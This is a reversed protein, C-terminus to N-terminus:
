IFIMFIKKKNIYRQKRVSFQALQGFRALAMQPIKAYDVTKTITTGNEGEMTVSRGFGHCIDYRYDKLGGIYLSIKGRCPPSQTELVVMDIDMVSDVMVKEFERPVCAYHRKNLADIGSLAM